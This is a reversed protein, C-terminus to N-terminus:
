PLQNCTEAHIAPYSDIGVLHTLPKDHDVSQMNLSTRREREDMRSINRYEDVLCYNEGQSM